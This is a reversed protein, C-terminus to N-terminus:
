FYWFFSLHTQNNTSTFIFKTCTFMQFLLFSSNFLYHLMIWLTIKAHKHSFRYFGIDLQYFSLFYLIEFRNNSLGSGLKIAMAMISIILLKHDKGINIQIIMTVFSLPSYYDSCYLLCFSNISKWPIKYNSICIM